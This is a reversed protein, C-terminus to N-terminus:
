VTCVTAVHAAHLLFQVCSTCTHRQDKRRRSTLLRVEMGKKMNRVSKMSHVHQEVAKIEKLKEKNKHIYKERHKKGPM